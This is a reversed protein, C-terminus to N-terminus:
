EVLVAHGYGPFSSSADNVSSGSNFTIDHAVVMLWNSLAGDIMIQGAPLYLM